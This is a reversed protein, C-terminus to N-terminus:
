AHRRRCREFPPSLTAVYRFLSARLPLASYSFCAVYRRFFVHSQFAYLAECAIDFVAAVAHHLRACGDFSACLTHRFRPLAVGDLLTVHSFDFRFAYM